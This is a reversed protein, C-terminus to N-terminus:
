AAHGTNSRGAATLEEVTGQDPVLAVEQADQALEFGALAPDSRMPSLMAKLKVAGRRATTRPDCRHLVRDGRRIRPLWAASGPYECTTAYETPSIAL